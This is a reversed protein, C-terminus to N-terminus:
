VPGERQQQGRTIETDTAVECGILAVHLHGVRSCSFGGDDTAAHFRGVLHDGESDVLVVRHTVTDVRIVGVQVLGFVIAIVEGHNCLIAITSLVQDALQIHGQIIIAIAGNVIVDQRRNQITTVGGEPGHLHPIFDVRVPTDGGSVFESQVVVHAVVDAQADGRRVQRSRLGVGGSM